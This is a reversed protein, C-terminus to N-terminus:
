VRGPMTRFVRNDPDNLWAKMRKPDDIVGKRKLDYYITLPISAVKHMDGRFRGVEPAGNYQAKNVEILPEVDQLTEITFSEDVNDYHFMETVDGMHDFVRTDSM